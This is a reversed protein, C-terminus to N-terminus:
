ESGGKLLEELNNLGFLNLDGNIRKNLGSLVKGPGCEFITDIGDAVVANITEVWRVPNCLQRVLADRIDDPHQNAKVDVNNIIPMKPPKISVANLCIALQEAAPKMLECHSPVSVPLKMARKAGTKKALEMAREVAVSDGAIVIQAPSNFNVAAVIDNQASQKCVDVVQESSLGLIVVMAGQGEAVVEQMFRARKAVLGVADAFAISEAAVLAAYEGLSHGAMIAPEFGGKEQWIRWVAVDAVLLAPQTYITQNLTEAPGTSVIKWLDYNLIQSAESFLKEVLSYQEALEALMGVSQSGQGPFVFSVNKKM